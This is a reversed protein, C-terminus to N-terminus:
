NDAMVSVQLVPATFGAPLTFTARYTTTTNPGTTVGSNTDPGIWKSTGVPKGWYPKKAVLVATSSSTQGAVTLSVPNVGSALTISDALASPTAAVFLAFISIAAARIPRAAAVGPRSSQM